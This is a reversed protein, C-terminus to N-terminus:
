DRENKRLKRLKIRRELVDNVDHRLHGTLRAELDRIEAVLKSGQGFLVPGFQSRQGFFCLGAFALWLDDRRLRPRLVQQQADPIEEEPYILLHDIVKVSSIVKDGACNTVHPLNTM